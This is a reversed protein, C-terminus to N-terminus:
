AILYFLNCYDIQLTCCDLLFTFGNFPLFRITLMGSEHRDFHELIVPHSLMTKVDDVSLHGTVFTVLDTVIVGMQFQVFVMHMAYACANNVWGYMSSLKVNDKM